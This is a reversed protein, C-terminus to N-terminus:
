RVELGTEIAASLTERDYTVTRITGNVYELRHLHFGYNESESFARHAVVICELRHTTAFIQVDFKRVLQKGSLKSFKIFFPTIFDM